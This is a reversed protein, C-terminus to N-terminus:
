PADHYSGNIRIWQEMKLIEGEIAEAKKRLRWGQKRGRQRDMRDAEKRLAAAEDRMMTILISGHISGNETSM